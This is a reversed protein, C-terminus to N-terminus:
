LSIHHNCKRLWGDYGSQLSRFDSCCGHLVESLLIIQRIGNKIGLRYFSCGKSFPFPRGKWELHWTVGVTTSDEESIADIVFQLDTSVYDIFKGFFELISKRGVFPSPFVLDEYVCNPAILPEVSALDHRNIGGYFNRVIDSAPILQFPNTQDLSIPPLPNDLSARFTIGRKRSVTSSNPPFLSLHLLHHNHHQNHNRPKSTIRATFTLCCNSHVHSM